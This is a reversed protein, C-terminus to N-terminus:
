SDFVMIPRVEITGYDATPIKAGWELAEDLSKCEFMFFGGLQEKTEAFPGDTLSTKGNRVRISTATSIAELADGAVMVGAAGAEGAFKNYAAILDEPKGQYANEASYILAMYKM